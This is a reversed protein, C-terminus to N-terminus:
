GEQELEKIKQKLDEKKKELEPVTFHKEETARDELANVADEGHLAVLAKRYMLINGDLFINCRPCQANVNMLDFLTSAHRADVLHGAQATKYDIMRMCSICKCYELTGTTRKCDRLRVYRSLLVRCEGKLKRVSKHKPKKIM